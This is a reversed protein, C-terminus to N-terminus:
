QDGPSDSRNRSKVRDRPPEPLFSEDIAEDLQYGSSFFELDVGTEEAAQKAAEHVSLNFENEALVRLSPSDEFLFALQRRQERITAAWSGSRKDPQVEWKILHTLLIVLRSRVERRDRKGMDRLEEAVHELDVEHSRGHEILSATRQTWEFFDKDYLSTNKLTAQKM